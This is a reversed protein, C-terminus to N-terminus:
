VRLQAVQPGFLAHLAHGGSGDSAPLSVIATIPRIGTVCEKCSGLVRALVDLPREIRDARPCCALACAGCAGVEGCAFLVVAFAMVGLVIATFRLFGPMM